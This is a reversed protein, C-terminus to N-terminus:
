VEVINIGYDKHLQIYKKDIEKNNYISSCCNIMVNIKKTITKDNSYVDCIQCLTDYLSFDKAEGCVYIYKYNKLEYVWAMDFFRTEPTVIEPRVAGYM